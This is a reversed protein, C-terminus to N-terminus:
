ILGRERCFPDADPIYLGKVAYMKLLWDLYGAMHMITFRSMQRSVIRLGEGMDIARSIDAHKSKGYLDIHYEHCDDSTFVTDDSFQNVYDRIHPYVVGWCYGLQAKSKASKAESILVLLHDCNAARTEIEIICTREIEPNRIIYPSVTMKVKSLAMHKLILVLNM